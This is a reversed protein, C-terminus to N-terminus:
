RLRPGPDIGLYVRGGLPYTLLQGVGGNGQNWGPSGAGEGVGAPRQNVSSAPPNYIM